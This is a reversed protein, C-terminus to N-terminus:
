KAPRMAPLLWVRDLTAGRPTDDAVAVSYMGNRSPAMMVIFDGPETVNMRSAWDGNQHLGISLRGKQLHGAVLLRTESDLYRPAARFIFGDDADASRVDILPQSPYRPSPSGPPVDPVPSGHELAHGV